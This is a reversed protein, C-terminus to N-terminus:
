SFTKEYLERIDKYNIDVAYVEGFARRTEDKNGLELHSLGLNYYVAKLEESPVHSYGKDRFYSLAKEFQSVALPHDGKSRFGLGLLYFGKGAWGRNHILRQLLAIAEDERKYKILLEGLEARKAYAEPHHHLYDSLLQIRTQEEERILNPLDASDPQKAQLFSIRTLLSEDKLELNDPERAALEEFLQTALTYEGTERWLRAQEIQAPQYTHDKDLIPVLISDAEQYLGEQRYIAAIQVGLERKEPHQEYERLLKNVQDRLEPTGAQELKEKEMQARRAKLNEPIGTRSYSRASLDRMRHVITDDDPRLKHLKELQQVAEDLRDLQILIESDAQLAAADTANIGLLKLYTEHAEELNGLKMACEANAKLVTKNEPQLQALIELDGQAKEPKGLRLMLLCTGLKVNRTIFSWNKRAKAIQLEKLRQQAAESEPNYSLVRQLYEEAMDFEGQQIANQARRLYEPVDM